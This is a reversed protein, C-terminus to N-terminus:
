RAGGREFQSAVKSFSAALDRFGAVFFRLRERNHRDPSANSAADLQRGARAILAVARLVRRSAVRRSTPHLQERM